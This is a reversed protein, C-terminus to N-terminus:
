GELNFSNAVIWRGSRSQVMSLDVHTRAAPIRELLDGSKDLVDYAGDRTKVEVGATKAELDHVNLNTVEIAIDPTRERESRNRDIVRVARYCTCGKHVLLKLTSTDNTRAARTLEAYYNRVAAEVQQEPTTPTPSATASDSSSSSSKSPSSPLTGPQDPDSCGVACVIVVCAAALVRVPM